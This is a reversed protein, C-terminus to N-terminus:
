VFAVQFGASALRLQCLEADAQNQKSNFNFDSCSLIFFTYVPYCISAIVVTCNKGTGSKKATAPPFQGHPGNM